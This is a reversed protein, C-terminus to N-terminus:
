GPVIAVERSKRTMMGGCALDSWQAIALTGRIHILGLASRRAEDTVQPRNPADDASASGACM